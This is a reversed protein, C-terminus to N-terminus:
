GLRLTIPCRLSAAYGVHAARTRFTRRFSAATPGVAQAHAPNLAPPEPQALGDQLGVGLDWSRHRIGATRASPTSRRSATDASRRRRGTPAAGASRAPGGARATAALGRPPRSGTAPLSRTAPAAGYPISACRRAAQAPQPRVTPPRAVRQRMPPPWQPRQRWKPHRQREPRPLHESRQRGPMQLRQKKRTRAPVRAPRVGRPAGGSCGANHGCRPACGLRACGRRGMPGRARDRRGPAARNAPVLITGRGSRHDRPRSRGGSSDPDPGAEASFGSRIGPTPRLLPEGSPRV